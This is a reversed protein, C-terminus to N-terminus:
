PSYPKHAYTAALPGTGLVDRSFGTNALKEAKENFLRLRRLVEARTM